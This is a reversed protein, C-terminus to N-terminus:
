TDMMHQRGQFNQSLIKYQHAPVWQNPRLFRGDSDERHQSPLVDCFAWSHQTLQLLQVWARFSSLCASSQGLNKGTSAYWKKPFLFDLYRKHLHHGKLAHGRPMHIRTAKGSGPHTVTLPSNGRRVRGTVRYISLASSCLLQSICNVRTTVHWKCWRRSLLKNDWSRVQFSITSSLLQSLYTPIGVIEGVYERLQSSLRCIHQIWLEGKIYAPHLHFLAALPLLGM